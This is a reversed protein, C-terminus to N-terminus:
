LHVFHLINCNRSLLMPSFIVKLKTTNETNKVKAKTLSKLCPCFAAVNKVLIDCSCNRSLVSFNKGSVEQGLGPCHLDGEAGRDDMSRGVHGMLGHKCCEVAKRVWLVLTWIGGFLFMTLVIM